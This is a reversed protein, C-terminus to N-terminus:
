HVVFGEFLGYLVMWIAVCWALAVVLGVNLRELLTGPSKQRVVPLHSSEHRVM